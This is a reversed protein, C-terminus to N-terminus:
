LFHAMYEKNIDLILWIPSGVLLTVREGKTRRGSALPLPMKHKQAVSAPTGDSPVTWVWCPRAQGRCRGTQIDEVPLFFFFFSCSNHQRLQGCPPPLVNIKIKFLWKRRLPKAANKIGSTVAPAAELVSRGNGSGSNGCMWTRRKRTGWGRGWRGGEVQRWVCRQYIWTHPLSCEAYKDPSKTWLIVYIYFLIYLRNGPGLSWRGHPDPWGATCGFRGWEARCPPFTAPLRRCSHAVKQVYYNWTCIWGRSLVSGTGIEGGCALKRLM